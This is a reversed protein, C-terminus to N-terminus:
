QLPETVTPTNVSTGLQTIQNLTSKLNDNEAQLTSIQAQLPAIDASQDVVANTTLAEKGKNYEGAIAQRLDDLNQQSLGPVRQLLLNNFMDVKSNYIKSLTGTIRFEEEVINWVEKAKKLDEAHGSANIRQEVEKSKISIFEIVKEGIKKIIAVLVAVIATALIPAIQSLLFEKM